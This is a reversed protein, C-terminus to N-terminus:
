IFIACTGEIDLRPALLSAPADITSYARNTARMAAILTALTLNSPLEELVRNEAAAELRRYSRAALEFTLLLL